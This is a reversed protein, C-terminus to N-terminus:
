LDLVGQIALELEWLDSPHSARLLHWHSAQLDPFNQGGYASFVHPYAKRALEMAAESMNAPHGWPFSFFSVAQELHEELDKRSGVIEQELAGLDNSGCDFHFRTHSGIECGHDRLSIVEKWTLPLFSKEGRKLDHDFQRGLAVNGTCVFLCAPLNCEETIARLNVFNEGYGDDFTLVVTPAEVRGSHLEGVAESLSVIRYHERLFWAHRLFHDTPMGFHHPRDAILHHYLIVIPFSGRWRRWWNRVAVYPLFVITRLLLKWLPRSRKAEYTSRPIVVRRSEQVGDIGEARTGTGAVGAGPEQSMRSLCLVLLDRALLECKLRMGRVTDYPGRSVTGTELSTRSCADPHARQVEVSVRPAGSGGEESSECWQGEVFEPVSVQLFGLRALARVEPSPLQSGWAVGIDPGLKALLDGLRQSEYGVLDCGIRACFNQLDELGFDAHGNPERPCAHIMRLLWNGIRHHTGHEPEGPTKPQFCIACIQAEPIDCLIRQALLLTARPTAESFLVIRFRNLVTARGTAEPPHIRRDM